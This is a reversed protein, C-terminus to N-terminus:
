VTDGSAVHTADAEIFAIREGQIDYAYEILEARPCFLHEAPMRAAEILRTEAQDMTEISGDELIHRIEIPDKRLHRCVLVTRHCMIPDKEACLLAIRHTALGRRVRELGQRFAPLQAIRDYRARREVYSEPECRRAGLERGLFVYRIGARALAAALSERNFQSHFRSYPQSRVDAVATVSHRALLGLFEPM